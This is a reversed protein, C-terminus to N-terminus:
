PHLPSNTETAFQDNISMALRRFEKALFLCHMANHSVIDSPIATLKPNFRNKGRYTALSVTGGEESLVMDGHALKNRFDILKETDKYLSNIASIGEKGWYENTFAKILDIKQKPQLPLVLAKEQVLNLSLLASLASNINSNLLAFNIFLSGIADGLQPDDNNTITADHEESHM